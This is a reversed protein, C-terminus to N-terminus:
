KWPLVGNGTWGAVGLWCRGEVVDTIPAADCQQEELRGLDHSVGLACMDTAPLEVIVIHAAVHHRDALMTAHVVRKESVEIAPDEELERGVGADCV